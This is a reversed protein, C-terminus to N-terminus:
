GTLRDAQIANRREFIASLAQQGCMAGKPLTPKIITAETRGQGRRGRHISGRMNVNVAPAPGDFQKNKIPQSNTPQDKDSDSKQDQDPSLFYDNLPNKM